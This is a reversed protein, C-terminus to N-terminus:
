SREELTRRVDAITPARRDKVSLMAPDDDVIPLPWHRVLAPDLPTCALGDMDPRWERDFCYLYVCPDSLSQFGNAVGPPVLIEVGQRLTIQEVEGFTPSDPRLDLYMGFAEGSVVTTLKTMAEAHMGRVAGRRSTTINVQCLDGIHADADSFTSRRFAESITGREDSVQKPALALLGDIATTRVSFDVIDM